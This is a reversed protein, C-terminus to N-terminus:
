HAQRRLGAEDVLWKAILDGALENGRINWHTNRPIYLREEKAYESFAPLLDLVEIGQSRLHKLLLRNPLAADWYQQYPEYGRQMVLAALPASVQVEDPVLAVFFDIGRTDCIRKMEFIPELSLAVKDETDGLNSFFISARQTAIHLFESQELTPCTDCYGYFEADWGRIKPSNELFRRVLFLYRIATWLYSHEIVSDHQRRGAGEAIDNGIFFSVLVADPDLPLGERVLLSLYHSPGIGPIGMNLVEFNGIRALNEELVTLFNNRYPVNGYAFSDGLAVIRYVSREKPGFESDKFGLSNLKIDMDQAGPARRWRNYSDDYFVSLPHFYHLVRLSAEALAITIIAIVMGSLVLNKATKLTMTLRIDHDRSIRQIRANGRFVAPGARMGDPPDEEDVRDASTPRNAGSAFRTTSVPNHSGRGTLTDVTTQETNNTM